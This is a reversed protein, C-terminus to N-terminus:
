KIETFKSIPILIVPEIDASDRTNLTRGGIKHVFTDTPDYKYYGLTDIWQVIILMDSRNGINKYYEYYEVGKMFKSQSLVLTPYKRMENKRNKVEAIAQIVETKKSTLIYDYKYSIPLKHYDVNFHKCFRKIVAAETSLDSQSEYATRSV